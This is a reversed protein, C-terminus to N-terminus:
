CPQRPPPCTSSPAAACDPAWRSARSGHDLLDFGPPNSTLLSALPRVQLVATALACASFADLIKLKTPTTVYAASFSSVIEKLTDLHQAMPQLTISPQPSHRYDVPLRDPARVAKSRCPCRSPPRPRVPRGPPTPASPPLHLRRCTCSCGWLGLTLDELQNEELVENMWQQHVLLWVRGDRSVLRARLMPCMGAVAM